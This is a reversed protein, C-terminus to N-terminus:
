WRRRRRGLFLITVATGAVLLALILVFGVPVGGIWLATDAIGPLRIFPIQAANAKAAAAKTAASTTGSALTASSGFLGNIFQENGGFASAGFPASGATASSGSGGSGGSAPTLPPVQGNQAAVDAAAAVTYAALGGLGDAATLPLYGPPLQGIGEGPTQGPGAAFTLLAAYDAAATPALGSTPVAAYVVLTGPYAASGLATEFQSYPIPWTGTSTDPQLLSTTAELSANSPAVFTGTTTQLAATQLDYRAGDALPTIGLMFYDGPSQTGAGSLANPVDPADPTCTTTSNAKHFQMSESVDELDALPAALVTDFPEPSTELCFQVQPNADFEASEWTSLLPWQNVPLAIGKYAPNVVMPSCADTAGAQYVGASNCVSPEGSSTGNLWARAAPDDNIYTTLADIVDSSESLSVLESANFAGVGMQPVGPNLAEFEPDDTINFPNGALAPDAEDEGLVPYSQTLLKALLLPTLKLTTIPEGNAGDISYSIAFGTVAVPANVVPKGYGLPQADSTFAAEASGSAVDNRAEPEGESVHNLTFTSENDDGLCFYPEWQSTAQLMLESGYVEVVNNSSVIPCSSPTQAFTLPVSIRNRWNSPSWWLGGTVTLNYPFDGSTGGALSGASVAGGAECAALDAAAPAPSVDGDCSIGMIPIAVLSCAVTASCGLTANQTSDFLDFEANGTGDLGTVGYVENSPLAATQGNTAEPPEGCFGAQGGDYVTGDAALWPVWYRVPAGNAGTEDEQCFPDVSTSPLPSPEGVVAAGPDSAYQDLQYPEDAVGEQYRSNADQTWCTEPTVADAGSATGRCELLVFPYEEYEGETSNPDPVIDGTPHAGSWSVGVEQRGQLNTTQSVNLTVTRTDAVTEQGGSLFDRSITETQTFAASSTDNATAATAPGIFGSLGGLLLCEAVCLGVLMVFKKM